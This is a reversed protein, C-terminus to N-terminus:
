HISSPNAFLLSPFGVSFSTDPRTHISLYLLSGIPWRFPFRRLEPPQAMNTSGELVFRDINEVMQTATYNSLGMGVQTLIRKCYAAHPLFMKSVKWEFTVGLYYHWVGLEKLKFLPKMENKEWTIAGFKASLVVLVHVNDLIDVELKKNKVM